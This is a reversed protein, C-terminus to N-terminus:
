GNAEEPETETLAEVQAAIRAIDKALKAPVDAPASDQMARMFDRARKAWVPLPEKEPAAILSDLSLTSIMAQARATKAAKVDGSTITQQDALVDLLTGQVTEPLKAIDEMVSVAIQGQEAAMRLVPHLQRLGLRKKITSSPIGTVMTIQAPTAGRELLREIADLESLPNSSRAHNELLTVADDITSGAALVRAPVSLHGALRAAKVRRRGAVIVLKNDPGVALTVPNIVGFRKVSDRFAADLEPADADGMIHSLEVWMETFDPMEQPFLSEQVQQPITKTVM